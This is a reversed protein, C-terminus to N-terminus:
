GAYLRQLKGNYCPAITLKIEIFVILVIIIRYEDTTSKRSVFCNGIESSDLKDFGTTHSKVCQQDDQGFYLRFEVNELMKTCESFLNM